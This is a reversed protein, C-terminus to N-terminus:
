RVHKEVKAILDEVAFPKPLSDAGLRRAEAPLDSIASVLVVPTKVGQERIARLFAWGDLGPMMMDLLIVQPKAEDLLRLADGGNSASVVEYGEGELVTRILKRIRDDDEVAMVEAEHAEGEAKM